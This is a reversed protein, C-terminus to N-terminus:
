PVAHRQEAVTGAPGPLSHEVPQHRHGADVVAQVEGLEAGPPPHGPEGLAERRPGRHRPQAGFELTVRDVQHQADEGGAREGGRFEAPLSGPRGPSRCGSGHCRLEARDDVARVDGRVLQPYVLAGVQEEDARGGRGRGHPPEQGPRRDRQNGRRHPGSEVVGRALRRGPAPEADRLGCPAREEDVAAPAERRQRGRRGGEGVRAHVYERDGAPVRACLALEVLKGSGPGHEPREAEGALYWVQHGRGVHDEGQRARRGAGLRSHYAAPQQQEVDHGPM